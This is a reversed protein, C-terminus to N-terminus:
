EPSGDTHDPVEMWAETGVERAYLRCGEDCTKVHALAEDFTTPELDDWPANGGPIASAYEMSM